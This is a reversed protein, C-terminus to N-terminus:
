PIQTQPSSSTTGGPERSLGPTAHVTRGRHYTATILGEGELLCLATLMSSSSVGYRTSLTPEGPLRTGPPWEGRRIEGRLLVAAALYPPMPGPPSPIAGAGRLLALALRLTHRSVGCRRALDTEPPLRGPALTGFTLQAGLDAAVRQYPYQPLQGPVHGCVLAGGRLVTILGQRQLATLATRLSNPSCDYLERLREGTPLHTGPPYTGNTIKDTLETVIRARIPRRQRRRDTGTSMPAEHVEHVEDDM